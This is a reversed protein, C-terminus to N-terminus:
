PLYLLPFAISRWFLIAYIRLNVANFRLQNKQKQKQKTKNQKQKWKVSTSIYLNINPFFILNVFLLTFLDVPQLLYEYM